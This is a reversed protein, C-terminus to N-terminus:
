RCPFPARRTVVSDPTKLCPNRQYICSALFFFSSCSLKPNLRSLLISSHGIESLSPHCVFPYQYPVLTNFFYIFLLFLIFDQPSLIVRSKEFPALFLIVALLALFLLRNKHRLSLVPADRLPFPKSISSGASSGAGTSPNQGSPYAFTFDLGNSIRAPQPATAAATAPPTDHWATFYRFVVASTSATAPHM